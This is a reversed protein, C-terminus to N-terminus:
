FFRVGGHLDQFIGSLVIMMAGVFCVQCEVADPTALAGTWTALGFESKLLLLQRTLPWNHHFASSVMDLAPTTTSSSSAGVRRSSRGLNKLQVLTVSAQIHTRDGLTASHPSACVLCTQWGGTGVQLINCSAATACVERSNNKLLTTRFTTTCCVSLARTHRNSYTGYFCVSADVHPVAAGAGLALAGGMCFGLVGVRECGQGKLWLASESRTLSHRIKSYAM